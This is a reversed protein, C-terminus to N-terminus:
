NSKNEVIFGDALLQYQDFISRVARKLYRENNFFKNGFVGSSYGQWVTYNKKPDIFQVLLTGQRLSYRVPDYKEDEKESKLWEDIKPQAYGPFRFDDYYITYSVLISPKKETYRYGQYEMRSKIASEIIDTFALSDGVAQKNQIFNFSNYKKFNGRYSYDYEVLYENKMCGLTIFAFLVVSLLSAKM